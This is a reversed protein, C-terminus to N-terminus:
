HYLRNVSRVIIRSASMKINKTVNIRIEKELGSPYKLFFIWKTDLIRFNTGQITERDISNCFYLPNLFVFFLFRQLHSLFKIKSFM